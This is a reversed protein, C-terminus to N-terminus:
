DGYWLLQKSSLMLITEKAANLQLAFLLLFLTVHLQNLNGISGFTKFFCVQLQRLVAPKLAELFSPEM